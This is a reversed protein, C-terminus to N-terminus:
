KFIKLSDKAAKISDKVVIELKDMQQEQPQKKLGFVSILIIGIILMIPALVGLLSSVQEKSHEKFDKIEFLHNKDYKGIKDARKYSFKKDVGRDTEKVEYIESLIVTDNEAPEILFNNKKDKLKNKIDDYVKQQDESFKTFKPIYTAKFNISNVIQLM